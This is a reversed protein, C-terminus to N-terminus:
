ADLVLFSTTNSLFTAGTATLGVGQMHVLMGALGPSLPPVLTSLSLSGAPVQGFVLVVFPSGVGIVSGFQPLPAFGAVPSVMLALTDNVAGVYDFNVTNLETVPNSITISRPTLGTPQYTSTSDASVSPGTPGFGSPWASGGAGGFLSTGMAIASSSQTLRIAAGGAGPSTLFGGAGGVGGGFITASITATSSDLWAGAGGTAGSTASSTGASGFGGQFSCGHLDLTANTAKLGPGGPTASSFFESHGWTKTRLVSVRCGSVEIPIRPGNVECDEIRTSGSSASGTVRIGATGLDGCDEIDFGVLLVHENSPINSVTVHAQNPSACINGLKIGLPSKAVIALGKGQIVLPSDYSGATVVLIDGPAATTIANQLAAGGGSVHVVGAAASSAIVFSVAFCWSPARFKRM